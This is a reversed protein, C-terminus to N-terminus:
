GTMQQRCSSAPRAMSSAPLSLVTAISSDRRTSNTSLKSSTLRQSSLLHFHFVGDVGDFYASSYSFVSVFQWSHLRTRPFTCGARRGGIVPREKGLEHASVRREIGERGREKGREQGEKNRPGLNQDHNYKRKEAAKEIGVEPPQGTPDPVM